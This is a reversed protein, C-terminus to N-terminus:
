GPPSSRQCTRPPLSRDGVAERVPQGGARQNGLRRELRDAATVVATVLKPEASDRFRLDEVEHDQRQGEDRQARHVQAVRAEPRVRSGGDVFQPHPRVALHQDLVVPLELVELRRVALPASTELERRRREVGPAARHHRGPGEPRSVTYEPPRAPAAVNAAGPTIWPGQGSGNSRLVIPHISSAIGPVFARKLPFAYASQHVPSSHVCPDYAANM